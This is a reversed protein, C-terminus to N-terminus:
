QKVWIDCPNDESKFNKPDDAQATPWNYTVVRGSNIYGLRQWIKSPSKYGAPKLPHNEARAMSVFSTSEFEQSQVHKELAEFLKDVIKKGRYKEDVIVDGLYYNKEPDVVGQLKNEIQECDFPIWCADFDKLSMGTLFGAVDGNDEFAVALAGTEAKTYCHAYLQEFEQGQNMLYPFQGFQAMRQAVILQEYQAIDPGTFLRVTIDAHLAICFILNILCIKKLM